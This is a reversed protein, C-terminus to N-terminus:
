HPSSEDAKFLNTKEEDIMSDLIRAINQIEKADSNMLLLIREHVQSPILHATSITQDAVMFLLITAASLLTEQNESQLCSHILPLGETELVIQQALPDCIYNCLGACGFRKLAEDDEDMADLFIEGINLQSFYTYNIPDYAFNGLNAVIERKSKMSSTTQFENVLQQLYEGRSTGYKGQRERIRERTSLM